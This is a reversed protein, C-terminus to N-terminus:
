PHYQPGLPSNGSFVILDVAIMVVLFAAFEAVMAPRPRQDLSFYITLILPVIVLDGMADGLVWVPWLIWFRSWPEIGTACITTVGITASITTSAMAGFVILGLVDKFRDLERRFGVVRNLLYAGAVAELTNGAAIGLSTDIAPITTFNAIFAGVYIAPWIRYGLLLVASLAIGTPPWVATVQEAVVAMSLGLKAGAVYFIVTLLVFGLSQLSRPKM